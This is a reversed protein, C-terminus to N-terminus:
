KSCVSASLCRFCKELENSFVYRSLLLKLLEPSHEWDNNEVLFLLLNECHEMDIKDPDDPIDLLNIYNMILTQFNKNSKIKESSIRTVVQERVYLSQVVNKTKNSLLETLFTAFRDGEMKFLSISLNLSM